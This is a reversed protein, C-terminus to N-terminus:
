KKARTKATAKHGVVYGEVGSDLISWAPNQECFKVVYDKVQGKTVGLLDSTVAFAVVADAGSGITKAKSALGAIIARRQKGAETESGPKRGKVAKTMGFANALDM